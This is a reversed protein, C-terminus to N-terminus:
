AADPGLYPRITEFAKRAVDPSNQQYPYLEITVWGEYRIERLAAFIAKYDMAGEGPPLHFHVRDAAIDELITEEISFERFANSSFALKM